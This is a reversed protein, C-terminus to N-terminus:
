LKAVGETTTDGNVYVCSYSSKPNLVVLDSVKYYYSSGTNFFEKGNTQGDYTVKGLYHPTYGYQLASPLVSYDIPKATEKEMKITHVYSDKVIINLRGDYSKRVLFPEGTSFSANGTIYGDGVYQDGNSNLKCLCRHTTGDMDVLYTAGPELEEERAAITYFVTGDPYSYCDNPDFLASNLVTPPLYEQTTVGFHNDALDNWSMNDVKELKRDIESATYSLKYENAM